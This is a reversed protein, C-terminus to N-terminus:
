EREKGEVLKLKALPYKFWELNERHYGFGEM